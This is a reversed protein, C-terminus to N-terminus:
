YKVMVEDPSDLIAQLAKDCEIDANVKALAKDAKWMALLANHFVDTDIDGDLADTLPLLLSIAQELNQQQAEWTM